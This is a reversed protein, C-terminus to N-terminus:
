PACREEKGSRDEGDQATGNPRRGSRRALEGRIWDAVVLVATPNRRTWPIVLDAHQRSAGTYVSFNPLVDQRYWAAARELDGGRETVDRLLRRLVREDDPADVFLALDLLSRLEPHWLAFLGEVILVSSPSLLTTQVQRASLRTGPAPEVAAAGARLAQFRELFAPWAMGEPANVTRRAAREAEPLEAWDRFYRDQHLVAPRLDALQEVLLGAFTSKGAGSGGAIGVCLCGPQDVDM